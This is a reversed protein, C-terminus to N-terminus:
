DGYPSRKLHLVASEGERKREIFETWSEPPQSAHNPIIAFILLLWGILVNNQLSPPPPYPAGLYGFVILWIGVAINLLHAYHWQRRYSVLSFLLIATAGLYDNMWFVRTEHDFIFPSVMLWVGLCMEIIRAWM